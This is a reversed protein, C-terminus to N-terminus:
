ADSWREGLHAFDTRLVPADPRKAWVCLREPPTSMIKCIEERARADFVLEDHMSFYISEALGAEYIAYEAEALVDYASGQIFFNVGKHVPRSPKKGKGTCDACPGSADDEADKLGTGECTWCKFPELPVPVIRGSITVIMGHDRTIRRLLGEKGQDRDWGHVLERSGPLAAWVADVIDQAESGSWGNKAAVNRMAEGYMQALLVIKSHKYKLSVGSESAAAILAHYFKQGAEYFELAKTDGAVNAMVVPEIQSWDNSGFGRPDRCTCPPASKEGDKVILTPHEQTRRAEEWDDALLIGRSAGSFQQLPPGGISSRGTAAALFGTSPHIRGGPDADTVVKTMYDKDLHDLNKHKLFADVLPGGIKKELHDKAGSPKKTKPTRPYHAPLLGDKDLKAVLSNSDTPKVGAELIIKEMAALEVEAERRWGDLYEPDYLIGICQRRVRPRNNVQERDVLRWAENGTVGRQGFPHGETLRRYFANQVVPALRFTGIADVVAGHLYAPTNLDTNEFWTTKSVNIKKLLATLADKGDGIGLYRHLAMFLKHGGKDSPNAGRCYILTDVINYCSDLELMGTMHLNPADFPSGHMVIKRGSNVIEYVRRHQAPDRPDLVLAHNESTGIQVSKLDTRKRGDKGAGEIDVSVVDGIRNVDFDLVADHGITYACGPMGAVPFTGGYAIRVPPRTLKIVGFSPSENSM